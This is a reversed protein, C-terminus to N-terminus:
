QPAPAAPNARGTPRPPAPLGGGGAASLVEGFRGRCDDFDVGLAGPGLGFSAPSFRVTRCDEKRCGGASLPAPNGLVQCSLAGGGALEFLDFDVGALHRNGQGITTAPGRAFPPVEEFFLLNK